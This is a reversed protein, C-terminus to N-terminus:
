KNQGHGVKVLPWCDTIDATRAKHNPKGPDIRNICMVGNSGCKEYDAARTPVFRHKKNKRSGSNLRNSTRIM